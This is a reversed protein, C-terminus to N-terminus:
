YNIVLEGTTWSIGDLEGAFSARSGTGLNDMTSLDCQTTEILYRAQLFHNDSSLRRSSSWLGIQCEYEMQTNAYAIDVCMFNPLVQGNYRAIEGSIAYTRRAKM